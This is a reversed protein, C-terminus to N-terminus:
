FLQRSITESEGEEEPFDGGGGFFKRATVLTGILTIEITLSM